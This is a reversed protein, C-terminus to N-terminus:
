LVTVIACVSAVSAASLDETDTREIRLLEYRIRVYIVTATRTIDAPDRSDAGLNQFFYEFIRYPRFM